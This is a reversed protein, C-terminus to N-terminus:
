LSLSMLWPTERGSCVEETGKLYRTTRRNLHRHHPHHPLRPYRTSVLVARVENKWWTTERAHKGRSSRQVFSRTSMTCTTKPLPGIPTIHLPPTLAAHLSPPAHPPVLKAVPPGFLQLMELSTLLAILFALPLTRSPYLLTTTITTGIIPVRLFKLFVPNAVETRFALCM